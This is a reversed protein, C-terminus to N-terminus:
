EDKNNFSQGINLFNNSDKNKRMQFTKFVNSLPTSLILEPNNRSFIKKKNLAMKFQNDISIFKFNVKEPKTDNKIKINSQIEVDRKNLDIENEKILNPSIAMIDITNSRINTREYIQNTVDNLFIKRFKTDSKNNYNTYHRNLFQKLPYDKHKLNKIIEQNPYYINNVKQSTQLQNPTNEDM